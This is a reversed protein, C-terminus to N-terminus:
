NSLSLKSGQNTKYVEIRNQFAEKFQPMHTVTLVCSFDNAIANIAAILRDCGESDQTGFGEDIILLQLSTGARQALLKALALRISFNIRFAEGGSYTEYPRTGQADSINIELTDILKANKRKGAKQTLFLVHLQNGTLRSLIHNTQAELEPLVNEIMLTQIGNKGFALALEQHIRYKKKVERLQKKTEIQQNKLKELHSSSAELRGKQGFLEELKKRRQQIEINLTQIEERYDKINMFQQRLQELEQKTTAQETQKQQITNELDRYQEQLEPYKREAQKLQDYRSQSNKAQRLANSIDIHQSREYGLEKIQQEIERIKIKIESTHQLQQIAEQLQNIKKVIQPKKANIETQREQAENIRAQKIEAWKLQNEQSKLLGHTKEDYKLNELEQNLLKLDVQLDQAFNHSSLDLEIQEIEAQNKKLKSLTEHSAELQMELQNFHQQLRNYPEIEQNLTNEEQHINQLDKMCRTIQEKLEWIDEQLNQQQNQTKKIVQHRHHHDLEQECLPCNAEHNSILELKKILEDLQKEYIRQQEQLRQQVSKKDSRKEELRKQYNKKKDLEQIQTDITLAEQRIQPIKALEKELQEKIITLLELKAIFKDKKRAIENELSQRRQQLPSVESYLKELENIRQRIQRLRELNTKVESAQNLIQQNEQEQKQIFELQSQAKQSQLELENSQKFLQQELQQKQQQSDQFLQFKELLKKDEEELNLLHQYQALIEPSKNLIEDQEAIQNRLISKNKVLREGDQTLTQYKNQKENLQQEWTKRQAEETQLQQLKEVDQAILNQLQQIEAELSLLQATITEKQKLEQELPALSNELQEAQGKFQKSLDKAQEALQEYQELKLLDALIQKRENPRRQMFEDARGQRLYASNIFTDYDLKLCTNIHEQTDRIGKGSLSRFKGANEIQFDLSSNKGKQRTRIVRYTQENCIFQFDVRVFDAGTHMVNEETAARSEGWLAWTIAELLSSKGAGNAGCICATHFGRFDLTAEQYSLFNKLTLQLPIM